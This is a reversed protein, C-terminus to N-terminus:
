IKMWHQAEYHMYVNALDKDKSASILDTLTSLDKLDFPVCHQALLAILENTLGEADTGALVTRIAQVLAIRASCEDIRNFDALAINLHEAAEILLLAKEGNTM